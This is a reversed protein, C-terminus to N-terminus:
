YVQILLISMRIGKISSQNAIMVWLLSIGNVLRLKAIIKPSPVQLMYNNEIDPFPDALAGYM